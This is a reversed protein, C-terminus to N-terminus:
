NKETPKECDLIQTFLASEDFRVILTQTLQEQHHGPIEEGLAACTVTEKCRLVDQIEDYCFNGCLNDIGKFNLTM